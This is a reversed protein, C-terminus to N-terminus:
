FDSVRSQTSFPFLMVEQITKKNLLLMVLRDVGVAIGACPPLGKEVAAMFDEDIPFPVKGNRIKDKQSKRLRKRQEIPDTLEDYANGIEIGSIYVEFRLAVDPNGPKLRSLVAMSAPYEYLIVPKHRGLQPEIRQLFIKFYLIDWSDSELLHNVGARIGAARLEAPTKCKLLNIDAFTLWAQAVTLREWPPEMNIIGDAYQIKTHGLVSRCVTSVMAEMDDMIQEYGAHTRYWELITFEPNHLDGTEGNRFARCIQYISGFGNALLRKMHFEPSTPLFRVTTEGTESIYTTQFAELTPEIGPSVVIAPTEVEIFGENNFYNRIAQIIQARKLATKLM